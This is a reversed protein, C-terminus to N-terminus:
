QAHFIGFAGGGFVVSVRTPSPNGTGNEEIPVIYRVSRTLSTVVLYAGLM